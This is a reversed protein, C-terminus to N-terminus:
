IWVGGACIKYNVKGCAAPQQTTIPDKSM